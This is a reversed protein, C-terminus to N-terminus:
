DATCEELGAAIGAWVASQVEGADDRINQASRQLVALDQQVLVENGQIVHEALDALNNEVDARDEATAVGYRRILDDIEEGIADIASAAAEADSADRLDCVSEALDRGDREARLEQGCGVAFAAAVAAGALLTGRTGIRTM